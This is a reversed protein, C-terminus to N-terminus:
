QTNGKEKETSKQVHLYIFYTTSFLPTQFTLNTVEKCKFCSSCSMSFTSLMSFYLTPMLPLLLCNSALQFHRSFVKVDQCLIMMIIPHIYGVAM